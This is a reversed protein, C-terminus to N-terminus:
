PLLQLKKLIVHNTGTLLKYKGPEVIWFYHRAFPSCCGNNKFCADLNYKKNKRM